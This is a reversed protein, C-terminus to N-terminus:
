SNIMVQVQDMSIIQSKDITLESVKKVGTTMKVLQIDQIHTKIMGFLLLQDSDLHLKSFLLSMIM